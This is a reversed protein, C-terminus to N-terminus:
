KLSVISLNEEEKCLMYPFHEYDFFPMKVINVPRSFAPCAFTSSGEKKLSIKQYKQQDYVAAVILGEGIDLISSIFYESILTSYKEHKTISKRPESSSLLSSNLEYVLVGHGWTALVLM